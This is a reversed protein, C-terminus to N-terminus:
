CPTCWYTAPSSVVISRTIRHLMQSLLASICLFPSFPKMMVNYARTACCTSLIIFRETRRTARKWGDLGDILHTSLDRGHTLSHHVHIDQGMTACRSKRTDRDCFVYRWCVSFFGKEEEKKRTWFSIFFLIFYFIRIWTANRKKISKEGKRGEKRKVQLQHCGRGATSYQSGKAKSEEREGM